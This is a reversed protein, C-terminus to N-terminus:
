VAIVQAKDRGSCKVYNKIGPGGSWRCTEVVVSEPILVEFSMWSQEHLRFGDVTSARGGPYANVGYAGECTYCQTANAKVHNVCFGEIDEAEGQQIAFDKADARRSFAALAGRQSYEGSYVIWVDSGPEEEIM